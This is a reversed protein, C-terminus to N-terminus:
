PKFLWGGPKPAAPLRFVEVPPIITARGPTLFEAQEFRVFRNKDVRYTAIIRGGMFHAIDWGADRDAPPLIRTLTHVSTEHTVLAALAPWMRDPDHGFEARIRRIDRTLAPETPDVSAASGAPGLASCSSLAFVGVCL